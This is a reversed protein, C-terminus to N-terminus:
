WRWSGSGSLQPLLFLLINGNKVEPPTKAGESTKSQQLSDVADLYSSVRKYALNLEKLKEVAKKKLRPNKEFRDPHWIQVLDRYAQRVEQFTASTDLDLM